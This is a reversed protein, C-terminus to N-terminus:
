ISCGRSKLIECDCCGCDGGVGGGGGGGGGSIGNHGNDGDDDFGCVFPWRYYRKGRMVTM